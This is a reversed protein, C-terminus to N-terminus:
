LVKEGSPRTRQLVMLMVGNLGARLEKGDWGPLPSQSHFPHRAECAKSSAGWASGRIASPKLVDRFFEQALIAKRRGLCVAGGRVAEQASQGVM